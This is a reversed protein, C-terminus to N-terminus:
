SGCVSCGTSRFASKKSPISPTPSILPIYRVPSIPVTTQTMRGTRNFSVLKVSIETAQDWNIQDNSIPNNTPVQQDSKCQSHSLALLLDVNDKEKQSLREYGM